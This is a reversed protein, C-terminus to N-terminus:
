ILNKLLRKRLFKVAFHHAEDRIQKLLWSNNKILNKIHEAAASNKRFVFEDKKRDAGKAIELVPINFNGEILAKEAAKVQAKGGDIIILDPFPWGGASPNHKLRREVIEGIMAADNIGAVNKIKFKRYGSKLPKNNEFVVMSGVAEKDSLNSIDYGEIRRFDLGRKAALIVEQFGDRGEGILATDKIHSLSFIKRKIEEATEFDEKQAAISMEKKLKKIIEDKKGKFFLTINGIIKNYEKEEIRGVCPALCEGIQYYLCSKKPLIGCSRYPFLRRIIGLSARLSRASIFPGFIHKIALKRSHSSKIRWLNSLLNERINLDNKRLLVIRSFKEKTIGVYLFSKDDKLRSNYKPQYKKVLNAELILAEIVSPTKQYAVSKIEQLMGEKLNNASKHWYSSVRDHLSAAKGIYIIKKRGNRFFYIGPSKPLKKLQKQIMM